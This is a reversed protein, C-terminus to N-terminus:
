YLLRTYTYPDNNVVSSWVASVENVCSLGIMFASSTFFIIVDLIIVTNNLLEHKLRYFANSQNTTEFLYLFSKLASNM